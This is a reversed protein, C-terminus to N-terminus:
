KPWIVKALTIVMLPAVALAIKTKMERRLKSSFIKKKWYSRWLKRKDLMKCAGDKSIKFSSKDKFVSKPRQYSLKPRRKLCSSTLSERDRKFMSNVKKLAQVIILRRLTVERWESAPKKRIRRKSLKTISLVRLTLSAFWITRWSEERAQIRSRKICKIYVWWYIKKTRQWKKDLYFRYTHKVRTTRRSKRKAPSLSHSQFCRRPHCIRPIWTSRLYSIMAMNSTHVKKKKFGAMRTETSTSISKRLSTRTKRISHHRM